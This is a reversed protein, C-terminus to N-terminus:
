SPTTKRDEIEGSTSAVAVVSWAAPILSEGNNKFIYKHREYVGSGVLVCRREIL